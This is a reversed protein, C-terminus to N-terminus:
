LLCEEGVLCICTKKGQVEFEIKGERALWGVAAAIEDSKFGKIKKLATLTCRTETESLYEWVAGAAEGIGQVDM